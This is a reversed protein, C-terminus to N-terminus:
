MKVSFMLPLEGRLTFLKSSFHVNPLVCATRVYRVFNQDEKSSAHLGCSEDCRAEEEIMREM